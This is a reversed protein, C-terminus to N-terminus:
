VGFSVVGETWGGYEKKDRQIYDRFYSYLEEKSYIEETLPNHVIEKIREVYKKDRERIMYVRGRAFLETGYYGEDLQPFIYSCIDLSKSAWKSPFNRRDAVYILNYDEGTNWKNKDNTHLRFHFNEDQLNYLMSKLLSMEYKDLLNGCRVLFFERGLVSIQEDLARWEWGTSVRGEIIETELWPRLRELELKWGENAFPIHVRRGKKMFLKAKLHNAFDATLEKMYDRSGYELPILRVTTIM